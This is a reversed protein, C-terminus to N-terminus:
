EDAADSTYLLCTALSQPGRNVLDGAFWLQDSKPQYDIKKLLAKLEELCGQIDGIAYVAM